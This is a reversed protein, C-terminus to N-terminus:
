SPVATHALASRRTFPDIVSASACPWNRLEIQAGNRRGSRAGQPRRACVGDLDATTILARSSAVRRPRVKVTALVAARQPPQTSLAPIAACWTQNVGVCYRLQRIGTTLLVANVGYQEIRQGLPVVADEEDPLPPPPPPEEDAFALQSALPTPWGDPMAITLIALISAACLVRISSPLALRM